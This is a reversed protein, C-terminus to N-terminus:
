CGRIIRETVDIQRASGTLPDRENYDFLIAKPQEGISSIIEVHTMKWMQKWGYGEYSPLLERTVEERQFFERLCDKYPGNDAAFHPRSKANERAYVDLVALNCFKQIKDPFAEKLFELLIEYRRIRTHSIKGYGREEYFIGLGEFFHFMNRYKTEVEQLLNQFQGSNYYVEVMEEVQKLRIVDAYSLWRTSLIEYPEKNRCVGEYEQLHEAMYSGKLVKLFGMQLQDPHLRYVDRFSESFSEYDEFPLGAILDLHQHINHGTQVKRVIEAVKHFDMKRHIEEVTKPNTSQVGIELQILGPRMKRFLELEEETTLDAAVEFHFNTFGNDSELIFRWIEMAHEKRCNFTRDVFKVQAVKRDIFFQLEQKVLETDRFRLCKDVSSLCYSCSFPCGRSSEYYIIRYDFASLDEYPFPVESLEMIERDLNKQILGQEDRYTIGRIERIGNRRYEESSGEKRLIWDALEAFTKEGEGRMVGHIAPNEELVKGADYSVEPGGVWIETEPLVKSLDYILERVFSINWIYCSFCLVDPRYRFIDKMIEDQPQNITYEALDTLIGQKRAYARLSYVALNSHIYKANVAALLIRKM